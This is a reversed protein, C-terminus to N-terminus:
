VKYQKMTKTLDACNPLITTNAPFTAEGQIGIFPMGTDMAAYYDTLADGIFFCNEVNLDYRNLLARIHDPKKTPSGLTEQFYHAMNKRRIIEKLEDEPAGSIVFIPIHRYNLDVFEKAGPIWSADLVKEFVLNAYEGADRLVAEDSYPIDLLHKHAHEIIKVRSIGAHHQHHAVIKESIDTGYSEFLTRYANSKIELSDILVGDFDFFLASDNNNHM